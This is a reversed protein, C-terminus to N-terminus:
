ECKDGQAQVHGCIVRWKSVTKKLIVAISSTIVNACKTHSFPGAMYGMKLQTNIYQDVM